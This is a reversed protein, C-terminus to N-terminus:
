QTTMSDHRREGKGSSNILTMRAGSSIGGKRNPDSSKQVSPAICNLAIVNKYYTYKNIFVVNNLDQGVRESFLKLVQVVLWM